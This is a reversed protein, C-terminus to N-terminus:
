EQAVHEDYLALKRVGMKEARLHLRVLRRTYLSTDTFGLATVKEHKNNGDNGVVTEEKM